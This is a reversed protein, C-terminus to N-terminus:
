SEVQNVEAFAALFMKSTQSLKNEMDKKLNKRAKAAGEILAQEEDLASVVSPVPNVAPAVEDGSEDSLAGDVTEEVRAQRSKRKTTTADKSRSSPPIYLTSLIELAERTTNDDYTSGLIKVLRLSLTNRTATSM